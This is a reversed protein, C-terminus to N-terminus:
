RSRRQRAAAERGRQFGRDRRMRSHRQLGPGREPVPLLQRTHRDYDLSGGLSSSVGKRYEIPLIKITLNINPVAVGNSDTVYVVWDKKYTQTISTRSRTAPGLAIFLASQNVTLSADGFVSLRASSRRGIQVGNNATTSAGPSTSSRRRAAPTPPPRHRRCTAAARIRWATSPSRPAASRTATRTPSPRSWSRSSVTPGASQARDGDAVGPAGAQGADPGRVRRAAHGAGFRRARDGPDGGPERYRRCRSARKAPLM